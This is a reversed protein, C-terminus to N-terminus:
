KAEFIKNYYYLIRENLESLQLPEPKVEEILVESSKVTKGPTSGKNAVPTVTCYWHDGIATYKSELIKEKLGSQLLGKKYWRISTKEKAEYDDDADSYDYLCELNDEVSPKSKDIRVNKVEPVSNDPITVPKEDLDGIASSKIEIKNILVNGTTFSYGFSYSINYADTDVKDFGCSEESRHFNLFGVGIDAMGTKKCSEQKSEPHTTSFLTVEGGFFGAATLPALSYKPSDKYYLVLLDDYDLSVGKTYILLDGKRQFNEIDIRKEKANGISSVDLGEIASSKIEIKNIFADGAALFSASYGFSYSINYADTDVKDFGCSEESRYINFMYGVGIDLMGTKKCSEQKAEPHTTSYLTVDAGWFGSVIEATLSYKPSDKYYLVLSDDNGLSVGDTYVLLDGKRQFDDIDIRKEKANVFSLLLVFILFLLIKKM